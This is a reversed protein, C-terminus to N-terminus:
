GSHFSTRFEWCDISGSQLTTHTWNPIHSPCNNTSSRNSLQGPFADVTRSRNGSRAEEQVAFATQLQNLQLSTGYAIASESRRCKEQCQDLPCDSSLTQM